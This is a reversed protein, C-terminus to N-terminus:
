VVKSVGVTEVLVYNTTKKHKFKIFKRFYSSWAMWFISPRTKKTIIM